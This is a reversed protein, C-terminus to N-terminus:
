GDSPAAAADAVVLQSSTAVRGAAIAHDGELLRTLAHRKEEGTVLWLAERARDLARYTLTMRRRGRYAGTLAVDRDTVGLVPDDPVLSATHGDPGLGLHVLDFAPPLSRAYAAAAAELDLAEVPMPHLVVSRAARFSAELGTLNRDLDGVPAIREDVQWVGVAEWPVDAGALLRFMRAPTTGGSVALTFGGTQAIATRARDAILAAARAAAAEADALVELHQNM